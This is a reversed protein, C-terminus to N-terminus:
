CSINLNHLYLDGLSILEPITPRKEGCDLFMFLNDKTWDSHSLQLGDSSSFSTPNLVGLNLGMVGCLDYEM